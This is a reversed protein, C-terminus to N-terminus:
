NTSGEAEASTEAPASRVFRIIQRESRHTIKIFLAQRAADYRWGDSYIQFEPDSNWPIGHMQLELFPPIDFIALHHVGGVPFRFSLVATEGAEYRVDAATTWIWGQGRGLNLARPTHPLRDGLPYLRPFAEPEIIGGDPTDSFEELVYGTPVQAYEDARRAVSALLTLGIEESEEDNSQSLLLGALVSLRTDARGAFSLLYGEDLSTLRPLISERILFRIGTHDPGEYRQLYRGANVAAVLNELTEPEALIVEESFESLDSQLAATGPLGADMGLVIQELDNFLNRDGATIREDIEGPLSRSADSLDRFPTVASGLYLASTEDILRPSANALRNRLSFYRGLRLSELLAASATVAEPPSEAAYEWSGADALWRGESWGSYAKAYFDALIEETEGRSYLDGAHDFWTSLLSDDGTDQLLLISVPEASRRLSITKNTLRSLRPLIVLGGSSGAPSARLIPLNGHLEAERGTWPLRLGGVQSPDSESFDVEIEYSGASDESERVQLRIGSTLRVSIGGSSRSIGQIRVPIENGERNVVVATETEPIELIFSRFKLSLSRYGADGVPVLNGPIGASQKASVSIEGLTYNLSRTDGFERYLLWGIILAYVVLILYYAPKIRTQM